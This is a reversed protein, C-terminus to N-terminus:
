TANIFHMTLKRYYPVISYMSLVFLVTMTSYMPWCIYFRVQDLLFDKGLMEKLTRALPTIMILSKQDM